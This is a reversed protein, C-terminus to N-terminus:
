RMDDLKTEIRALRDAMQLIVDFNKEDNAELRTVKEEIMEREKAAQDQVAKIAAVSQTKVAQISDAARVSARWDGVGGGILLSVVAAIVVNKWGNGNGQQAM